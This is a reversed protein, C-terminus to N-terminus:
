KFIYVFGKNSDLARKQDQSLVLHQLQPLFVNKIIKLRRIHRSFSADCIFDLIELPFREQSYNIEFQKLNSFSTCITQFVESTIRCCRLTISQICPNQQAFQRWTDSAFISDYQSITLHKLAPMAINKFNDQSIHGFILTELQPLVEQQSLDSVDFHRTNPSLELVKLGKFINLFRYFDTNHCYSHLPFSFFKLHQISENQLNLNMMLDMRLDTGSIQLKKLKKMKQVLSKLQNYDCNCLFLEINEIHLQTELFDRIEDFGPHFVDIKKLQARKLFRLLRADSSMLDVHKLKPLLPTLVKYGEVRTSISTSGKKPELHCHRFWLTELDPLAKLINLYDDEPIKCFMFLVSRIHKFIEELEFFEICDVLNHFEVSIINRGSESIERLISKPTDEEIRIHFKKPIQPTNYVIEKFKKCVLMLRYLGPTCYKFIKILIEDPMDFLSPEITGDISSSSMSRKYIACSLDESSGYTQEMKDDEEECNEELIKQRKNEQIQQLRKSQRRTKVM